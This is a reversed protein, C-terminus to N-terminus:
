PMTNRTMMGRITSEATHYKHPLWNDLDTLKSIGLHKFTLRIVEKRRSRETKADPGTPQQLWGRVADLLPLDEFTEPRDARMTLFGARTFNMSVIWGQTKVYFESVSKLFIEPNNAAWGTSIEVAICSLHGTPDETEQSRFPGSFTVTHKPARETM